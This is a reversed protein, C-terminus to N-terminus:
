QHNEHWSLGSVAPFRRVQRPAPVYRVRAVFTVGAYFPSAHSPHFSSRVVVAATTPDTRDTRAGHATTRRRGVAICSAHM